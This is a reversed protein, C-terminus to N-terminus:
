EKVIKIDRGLEECIEEVTMEETEEEEGKIRYGQREAYDFDHWNRVVASLEYLYGKEDSYIVKVEDEDYDIVIDGPQIDRITKNATNTLELDSSEGYDIDGDKFKVYIEEDKYYVSDFSEIKYILGTKGLYKNLFCDTSVVKVKDGVKFKTM